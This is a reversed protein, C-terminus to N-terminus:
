GCSLNKAPEGAKGGLGVFNLMGQARERHRREEERYAGTMLVLEWLRTRALRHCATLVNDLAPAEPFVSTRQFMRVLGREAIRYPWDRSTPATSSSAGRM